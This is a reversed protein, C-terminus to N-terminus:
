KAAPVLHKSELFDLMCRRQALGMRDDCDRGAPSDKVTVNKMCVDRNAEGARACSQWITQGEGPATPVPTDASIAVGSSLGLAVSIAVAATILRSM